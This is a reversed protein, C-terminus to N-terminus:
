LPQGLHVEDDVMAFAQTSKIKFRIDLSSASKQFSDSQDNMRIWVVRLTAGPYNAYILILGVDSLM